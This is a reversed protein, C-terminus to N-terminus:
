EANIISSSASPQRSITHKQGRMFTKHTARQTRPWLIFQACRLCVAIRAFQVFPSPVSPYPAIHHEDKHTYINM